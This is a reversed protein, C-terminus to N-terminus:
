SNTRLNPEPSHAPRRASLAYSSCTHQCPLSWLILVCTNRQATRTTRSKKSFTVCILFDSHFYHNLSSIHSVGEHFSDLNKFDWKNLCFRAADEWSLFHVFLGCWDNQYGLRITLSDQSPSWHPTNQWPGAKTKMTLNSFQQSWPALIPIGAPQQQLVHEM